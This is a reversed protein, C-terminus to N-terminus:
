RMPRLTSTGIKKLLRRGFRLVGRMPIEMPMNGLLPITLRPPTIMSLSRTGTTKPRPKIPLDFVNWGNFVAQGTISTVDAWRDTWRDSVLVKLSVDLTEGATVGTIEIAVKDLSTKSPLFTQAMVEVTAIRLSDSGATSSQDVVAGARVQAVGGLKFYATFAVPWRVFKENGEKYRYSIL